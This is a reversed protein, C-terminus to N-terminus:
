DLLFFDDVGHCAKVAPFPLVCPRTEQAHLCLFPCNVFNASFSVYLICQFLDHIGGALLILGPPQDHCRSTREDWCCALGGAGPIIGLCCLVFRLNCGGMICSAFVVM